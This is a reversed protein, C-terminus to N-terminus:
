YQFLVLSLGIVFMGVFLAPSVVVLNPDYRQATALLEHFSIFVMMGAILGFLVAYALDVSHPDVTAIVAYGILAGFPEAIGSLTAAAFGKWRSGTAYYIPVAVCVGEPLNHIGIAVALGVGLTSSALAGVFTALGEPLNHLFICLGTMLGMRRLRKSEVALQARREHREHEGDDEAASGADRFDKCLVHDLYLISHQASRPGSPLMPDHTMEPDLRHVLVDLLAMFVVGGFFTFLTVLPANQAGVAEIARYANLSKSMIEVLSVYIMVGASAALAGALVLPRDLNLCFPLMAGVTTALGAGITLGFALGVNGVGNGAAAPAETVNALASMM